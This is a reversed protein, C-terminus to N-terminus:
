NYFSVNQVKEKMEKYLKIKENDKYGDVSLIKDINEKDYDLMLCTCVGDSKKINLFM